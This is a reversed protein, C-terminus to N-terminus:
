IAYQDVHNDAVKNAIYTYIHFQELLILHTTVVLHYMIM